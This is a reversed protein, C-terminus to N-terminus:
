AVPRAAAHQQNVIPYSENTGGDVVMCAFVRQGHRTLPRFLRFSVHRDILNGTACDPNCSNYRQVRHGQAASSTWNTYRIQRLTFIADGSCAEILRGPKFRISKIRHLCNAVVLARHSAGQARAATSTEVPSSSTPVAARQGVTCSAVLLLSIGVIAVRGIGV